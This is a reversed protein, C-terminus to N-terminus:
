EPVIYRRETATARFLARFRSMASYAAL